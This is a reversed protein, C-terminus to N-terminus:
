NKVDLMKKFIFIVFLLYGIVAMPFKIAFGIWVLLAIGFVAYIFLNESFSLECYTDGDAGTSIIKNM